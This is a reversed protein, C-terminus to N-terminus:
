KEVIGGCGNDELVVVKYAGKKKFQKLIKEGIMECSEEFGKHNYNDKIWNDVEAKVMFFELQRSKKEKFYVELYFIHRHWSELYGVEKPAGLFRHMGVFNTKVIISIKM